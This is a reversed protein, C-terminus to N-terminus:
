VGPWDGARAHSLPRPRFAAPALRPRMRMAPSHGTFLEHTPSPGAILPTARSGSKERVTITEDTLVVWCKRPPHLPQAGGNFARCIILWGQHAGTPMGAADAAMRDATKERAVLLSYSTAPKADMAEEVRVGSLPAGDVAVVVDGVKLM